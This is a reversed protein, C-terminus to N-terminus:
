TTPSASNWAPPWTCPGPHPAPMRPLFDDLALLIAAAMNGELHRRGQKPLDLPFTM